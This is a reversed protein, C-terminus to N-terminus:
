GMELSSGARALAMMRCCPASRMMTLPEASQPMESGRLM